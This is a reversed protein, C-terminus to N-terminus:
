AVFGHPPSNSKTTIENQTKERLWLLGNHLLVWLGVTTKAGTLGCRSFRHTHQHHSRFKSTLEQPTRFNSIAYPITKHPFFSPIQAFFVQSLSGSHCLVM